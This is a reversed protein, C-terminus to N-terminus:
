GEFKCVRLLYPYEPDYGVLYDRDKFFGKDESRSLVLCQLITPEPEYREVVIVDGSKVERNDKGLKLFERFYKLASMPGDFDRLTYSIGSDTYDADILKFPDRIPYDTIRVMLSVKGRQTCVKSIKM